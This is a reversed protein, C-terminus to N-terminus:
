LQMFLTASCELYTKVQQIFVAADWGDIVRHDFSSSLNMMKRAAFTSDVWVQRTVIKNVGIIAVEPANIIPTSAIGGLAGLSSLTITSGTLQAPKIKGAKATGALNQVENALDWISRTEADTVVPVMLGSPTQTAIGIHVASFQRLISAGEDFHANIKPYDKVARAIALMLFALITLKPQYDARTDNLHQRLKELETVDIEEVYTIHAISQSAAQLREAIKRRVGTIKIEEVAKQSTKNNQASQANEPTAKYSELDQQTVRGNSGTGTISALDIGAEKARRRVAPAALPRVDTDTTLKAAPEPTSISAQADSTEDDSIEGSADTKVENLKRKKRTLAVPADESVGLDLTILISGVALTDGVAGQLKEITGDMPAPIEITAKDTTVSVLIDEERVMDGVKVHWEVIEAETIGEGIDPMLIDRTSM